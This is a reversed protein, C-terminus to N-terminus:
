TRGFSGGSHKLEVGMTLRVVYVAEWDVEFVLLVGNEFLAVEFSGDSCAGTFRPEGCEEVEICAHPDGRFVGAECSGEQVMIYWLVEPVLLPAPFATLMCHGCCDVFCPPGALGNNAAHVVHWHAFDLPVGQPDKEEVYFPGGAELVEAFNLFENGVVVSGLLLVFYHVFGKLLSRDAAAKEVVVFFPISAESIGDFILHRGAEAGEECGNQYM